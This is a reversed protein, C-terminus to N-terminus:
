TQEEDPYIERTSAAQLAELRANAQEIEYRLLAVQQAIDKNEQALRTIVTSFYLLIFLVFLLAVLFLLNPPYAVGVLAAIGHLLDRWLSFILMVVATALWLLSYGERLKRRRVLELVFVLAGLSALVSLIMTRDLM